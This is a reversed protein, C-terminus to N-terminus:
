SFQDSIAEVARTFIVKKLVSVLVSLVVGCLKFKALLFPLKFISLMHLEQRDVFAESAIAASVRGM